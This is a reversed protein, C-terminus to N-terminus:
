ASNTEASWFYIKTQASHESFSRTQKSHSSSAFSEAVFSTVMATRDAGRAFGERLDVAEVELSKLFGLNGKAKAKIKASAMRTARMM